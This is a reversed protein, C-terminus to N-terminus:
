SPESKTSRVTFTYCRFTVPFREPYQDIQDEIASLTDEWEGATIQSPIDHVAKWSDFYRQRNMLTVSQGSISICQEFFSGQQLINEIDGMYKEVLLYTRRVSPLRANV